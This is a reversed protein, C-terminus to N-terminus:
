VRKRISRVVFGETSAAGQSAAIAAAIVAVLELDDTGSVAEINSEEQARIQAVANDIGTNKMAARNKRAEKRKAASQLKPIIAFCSIILSILILVLFVTGMGILTNLAAKSMLEGFTRKPNLSASELKLFMDNSLIIEATANRKEGIVEVEAVIQKGDLRVDVEGTEKVSGIDKLGSNFSIVAQSLAYGDVRLDIAEEYGDVEVFMEECLYELEEQTYQEVQLSKGQCFDDALLTVIEPAYAAAMDKRSQQYEPLQEEGGCATLGFVCAITCILTLFKKKM